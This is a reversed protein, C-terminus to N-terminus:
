RVLAAVNSISGKPVVNLAIKISILITEHLFIYKFIGDAFQRGDKETEIHYHKEPNDETYYM